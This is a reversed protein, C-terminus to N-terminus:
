ELVRATHYFQQSQEAEEMEFQLKESSTSLIKIKRKLRMYRVNDLAHLSPM